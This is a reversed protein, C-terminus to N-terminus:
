PSARPGGAAYDTPHLQASNLSGLVALGPRIPNDPRRTMNLWGVSGAALAFIAPFGRFGWGGQPPHDFTLVLITLGALVLAVTALAFTSAVLRAQRAIM